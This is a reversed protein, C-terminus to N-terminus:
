RVSVPANCPPALMLVATERPHSPRPALSPPACHLRLRARCDHGLHAGELLRAIVAYASRMEEPTTGTGGKEGRKRAPNKPSTHVGHAGSLNGVKSKEWECPTKIMRPVESTIFPDATRTREDAEPQVRPHSGVSLGESLGCSRTDGCQSSRDPLRGDLVAISRDGRSRVKGTCIGCERTGQGVGM